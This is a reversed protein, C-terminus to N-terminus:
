FCTVELRLIQIVCLILPSSSVVDAGVGSTVPVLLARAVLFEVWGTAHTVEPRPWHGSCVKTAFEVALGVFGPPLHIRLCELM